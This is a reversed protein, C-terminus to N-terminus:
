VAPAPTTDVPLGLRIRADHSLAWAIAHVGQTTKRRTGTDVVWGLHLLETRRPAISYLYKGTVSALEEDTLDPWTTLADIVLARLTGTRPSILQAAGRETPQGPHHSQGEAPGRYEPLTM